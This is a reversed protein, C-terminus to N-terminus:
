DILNPLKGYEKELENIRALIINEDKLYFGKQKKINYYKCMENYKKVCDRQFKAKTDKIKKEKVSPIQSANEVGFKNVMSDIMKQKLAHSQLSVHALHPTKESSEPPYKQGHMGPPLSVLHLFVAPLGPSCILGM